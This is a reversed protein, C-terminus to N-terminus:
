SWEEVPCRLSELLSDRRQEPLDGYEHWEVLILKLTADLGSHHLRELLAYETGECDLKLVVPGDLEDIVSVIDVCPVLKGDVALTAVIGRGDMEFPIMGDEVWVACSRVSVDCGGYRYDADVARPDFGLLREPRFRDILPVISKDNPHEPYEACGIDVVIM